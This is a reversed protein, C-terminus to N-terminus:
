PLVYVRWRGKGKPRLIGSEALKNMLYYARTEDVKLLERCHVNNISGNKKVYALIQEENPKLGISEDKVKLTYYTWRSAGNQAVLGTQVLGRLEERAMTADVHNLRRYDRNTIMDQQRLYVLALRQHDNLPQQSFQNLWAIAESDMLTHNHFTVWFSARKDNFGPPELNAGRMAQLMTHIGSGRNEVIHMDEMMRMLRANRTSQEEELNEVTVNGFLGGPSQVELRDAFMRVQIYSGHVYPSYDRHAVANALAERLADPPYEPIDRRFVREILASKRMAAYIHREATDIM